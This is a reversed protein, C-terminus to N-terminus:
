FGVRAEHAPLSWIQIGNQFELGIDPRGDGNIDGMAQVRRARSRKHTWLQEGNRGSFLSTSGLASTALIDVYGDNNVDGPGALRNGAELIELLISNDKMSRVVVRNPSNSTPEHLLIDNINDGDLDGLGSVTGPASSGGGFVFGGFTPMSGAASFLLLGGGCGRGTAFDSLGDGTTDGLAVTWFYPYENFPSSSSDFIKLSLDAGSIFVIKGSPFQCNEFGFSGAVLDGVGDGNADGVASLFAGFDQPPLAFPFQTLIAGDAGSIATFVVPFTNLDLALFDLVGDGSISLDAVPEIAVSFSQLSASMDLLLSGDAGSRVEKRGGLGSYIFDGAGDGNLDFPSGLLKSAPSVIQHLLEQASVAPLLVCSSALVAMLLKSHKM